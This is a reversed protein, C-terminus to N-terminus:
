PTDTEGGEPITRSAGRRTLNSMRNDAREEFASDAALLIRALRPFLKYDEDWKGMEIFKRFLTKLDPNPLVKEPKRSIVASGGGGRYEDLTVPPAIEVSGTPSRAATFEITRPLEVRTTKNGGQLGRCVLCSTM